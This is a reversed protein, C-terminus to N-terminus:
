IKMTSSSGFVREPLIMRRRSRSIASPRSTPSVVVRASVETMCIMAWFSLYHGRTAFEVSIEMFSPRGGGQKQGHPVRQHEHAFERLEVATLGPSISM